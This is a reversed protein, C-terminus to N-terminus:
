DGICTFTMDPNCARMAGVSQQLEPTMLEWDLIFVHDARMGRMKSTLGAPRTIFNLISERSGLKSFVMRAISVNCSKVDILGTPELELLTDKFRFMFRPSSIVLVQGTIDYSHMLHNVIRGEAKSGTFIDVQGLGRKIRALFPNM